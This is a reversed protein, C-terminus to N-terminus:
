MKLKLSRIEEESLGSAVAIITIQIGNKLLNCAIEKAKKVEGEALGEAKGISIGEAKGEDHKQALSSLYDRRAKEAQDYNLLEQETWYFKDLEHYAKELIGTKEIIKKLDESSTTEAHKLFYCWKEELTHLEELTQTFKSLSIFTFSFDKLDHEFTKKDLVIHECKYDAKEPFIEYDIIALFIIAKLDEYQDGVHSHSSYAKSAYFQARKEFGKTKAIQMKVIYKNGKEDECLIDVISTKQVVIEPDQITKIFTINIIPSREEFPSCKM